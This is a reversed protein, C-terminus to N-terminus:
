ERHGGRLIHRVVYFLAFGICIVGGLLGAVAIQSLDKAEDIMQRPTM